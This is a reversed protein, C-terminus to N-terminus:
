SCLRGKQSVLDRLVLSFPFVNEGFFNRGEGNEAVTLTVNGATLPRAGNFGLEKKELDTQPPLEKDNEKKTVRETTMMTYQITGHQQNNVSRLRDAPRVPTICM